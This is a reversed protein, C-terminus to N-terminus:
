VRGHCVDMHLHHLIAWSVDQDTPGFAPEDRLFSTLHHSSDMSMGDTFGPLLGWTWDLTSHGGLSLSVPLVCWESGRDMGTSWVSGAWWSVRSDQTLHAWALGPDGVQRLALDAHGSVWGASELEQLSVLPCRTLGM